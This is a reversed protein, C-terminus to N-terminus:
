NAFFLLRLGHNPREKLKINPLSYEYKLEFKINTLELFRIIEQFHKKSSVRSWSSYKDKQGITKRKPFRLTIQILKPEYM